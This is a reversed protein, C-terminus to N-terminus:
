RCSTTVEHARRRHAGNHSIECLPAYTAYRSINRVILFHIEQLQIVAYQTVYYKVKSKDIM